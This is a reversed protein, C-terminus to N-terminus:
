WGGTLARRRRGERRASAQAATRTTHRTSQSAACLRKRSEVWVSGNANAAAALQRAFSLTDSHVLKRGGGEEGRQVAKRGLKNMCGRQAKCPQPPRAAASAPHAHLPQPQRGRVPRRRAGGGIAAQRGAHRAAPQVDLPRLHCLASSGQVMPKPLTPTLAAFGGRITASGKIGHIDPHPTLCCTEASRSQIAPPGAAPAPYVQATRPVM